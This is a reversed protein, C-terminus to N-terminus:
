PHLIHCRKFTQHAHLYFCTRQRDRYGPQDVEGVACVAAMHDFINGGIILQATEQRFVVKDRFRFPQRIGGKFQQVKRFNAPFVSLSFAAHESTEAIHLLM